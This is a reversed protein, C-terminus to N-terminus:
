AASTLHDPNIENWALDVIRCAAPETLILRSECPPLATPPSALFERGVRDPTNYAMSWAVGTRGTRALHHAPIARPPSFVMDTIVVPYQARHRCRCAFVTSANTSQLSSPAAHKGGCPRPTSTVGPTGVQAPPLRLASSSSRVPVQPDM